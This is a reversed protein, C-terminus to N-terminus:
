SVQRSLADACTLMRATESRWDPEQARHPGTALSIIVAAARLRLEHPDVREDFVPVWSHLLESVRQTQARTMRQVTSLHAVLCALDDVRRGPGITDVDVLGAIRGNAVYVQGEHFDGHTAENAPAPGAGELLALGSTIHDVMRELRPEEEPMSQSVIRAYHALNDTWPTRRSLEAVTPPLSDLLDILQEATCPDVDDFIAKSLPRGPVAALALLSDESSAVVEPSCVGARRLLTHRELVSAFLQERLVKVYFTSGAVTMRIVARRRPRYGIMQLQVEDARVPRSVLNEATVFQAMRQPVAARALGPLDPDSPYLWVAVERDRVAVIRSREDTASLGEARASVGFVERREGRPWRVTTQYTATTSQGPNADIQDLQWGLLEGRADAVVGRLVVGMQDSTLLGLGDDATNMM